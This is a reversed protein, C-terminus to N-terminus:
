GIPHGGGRSHGGGRTHRDTIHNRHRLLLHASPTGYPWPSGDWRASFGAQSNICLLLPPRAYAECKKNRSALHFHQAFGGGARVCPMRSMTVSSHVSALASPSVGERYTVWFTHLHIHTTRPHPQQRSSGTALCDMTRSGCIGCNAWAGETPKGCQKQWIRTALDKKHQGVAAQLVALVSSLPQLEALVVWEQPPSSNQLAFAPMTICWSRQICNSVCCNTRHNV